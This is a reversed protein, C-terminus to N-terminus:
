KSELSSARRVSTTRVLKQNVIVIAVAPSM